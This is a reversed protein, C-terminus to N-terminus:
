KAKAVQAETVASAKNGWSSRIYTIVAAIQANNLTPKWAPMAGNYTAGNVKISGTMGTLVTHIVKAPDGTVYPNKALPPFASPVGVGTAQHCSTCNSTYIAKGDPAAASVSSSQGHPLIVALGLAAAAAIFLVFRKLAIEKRPPTHRRTKLARAASDAM